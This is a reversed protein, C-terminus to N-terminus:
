LERNNLDNLCLHHLDRLDLSFKKMKAAVWSKKTDKVYNHRMPFSDEFYYNFISIFSNYSMNVYNHHIINNGNESSIQNKLSNILIM